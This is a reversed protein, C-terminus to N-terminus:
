WDVVRAARGFRGAVESAPGTLVSSFPGFALDVHDVSFLKQYNAVVQNPSSGDDLITIKMEDAM